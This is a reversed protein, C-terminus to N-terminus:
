RHYPINGVDGKKILKINKEDKISARGKSVLWEADDKNIMSILTNESNWVGIQKYKGLEKGDILYTKLRM